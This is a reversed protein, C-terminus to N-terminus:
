HFSLFCGLSALLVSLALSDAAGSRVAQDVSVVQRFAKGPQGLCALARVWLAWSLVWGLGEGDKGTHGAAQRSTVAGKEALLSVWFGDAVGM